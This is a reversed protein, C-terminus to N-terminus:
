TIIEMALALALNAWPATNVAVPLLALETYVGLVEGGGYPEM